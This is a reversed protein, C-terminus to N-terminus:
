QGVSFKPGISWKARIRWGELRRVRRGESRCLRWLEFDLPLNDVKEVIYCEMVVTGKSEPEHNRVM